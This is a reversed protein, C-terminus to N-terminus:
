LFTNSNIDQTNNIGSYESTTPVKQQLSLRVLVVCSFWSSFLVIVFVIYLLVGYTVFSLFPCIFTIPHLMCSTHTFLKDPLLFIFFLLFKFNTRMLNQFLATSLKHVLLASHVSSYSAFTFLM